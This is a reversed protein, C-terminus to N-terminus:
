EFDMCPSIQDEMMLILKSWLDQNALEFQGSQENQLGLDVNSVATTHIQFSEPSFNYWSFYDEVFCFKLNCSSNTTM